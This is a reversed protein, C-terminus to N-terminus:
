LKVCGRGLKFLCSYTATDAENKGMSHATQSIIQHERIIEGQVEYRSTQTRTPCQLQNQEWIKFKKLDGKGPKCLVPCNNWSPTGVHPFTQNSLLESSNNTLVGRTNCLCIIHGKLSRMCLSLTARYFVGLLATRTVTSMRTVTAKLTITNWLPQQPWLWKLGFCIILHM